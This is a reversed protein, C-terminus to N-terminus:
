ELQQSEGQWVLSPKRMLVVMAALEGAARTGAAAVIVTDLRGHGHPPGGASMRVQFSRVIAGYRRGHM